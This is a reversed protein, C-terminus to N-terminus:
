AQTPKQTDNAITKAIRGSTLSLNKNAINPVILKKYLKSVLTRKELNLSSPKRINLGMEVATNSATKTKKTNNFIM